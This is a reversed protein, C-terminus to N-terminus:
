PSSAATFLFRSMSPNKFLVGLLRNAYKKKITVTLSSLVDQCAIPLLPTLKAPSFLTIPQSLTPGGYRGFVAASLIRNGHVLVGWETGSKKALARKKSEIWKDIERQVVVANFAKAGSLGPNFISKYPPKTLDAFFRGIGTKM